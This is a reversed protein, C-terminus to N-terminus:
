GISLIEYKATGDPLKVDVKEKVKKDILAAGVPSVNSIKKNIPDAEATGAEEAAEFASVIDQSKHSVDFSEVLFPDRGSERLQALKERRIQRLENIDIDEPIFDDV